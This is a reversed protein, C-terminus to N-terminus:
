SIKFIDHFCLNSSVTLSNRHHEGQTECVLFTAVDVYVVFQRYPQPLYKSTAKQTHTHTHTHTHSSHSSLQLGPTFGTGPGPTHTHTHSHTDTGRGATHLRLRTCLHVRPNETHIM